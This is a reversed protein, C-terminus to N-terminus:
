QCFAESAFPVWCSAAEGKVNWVGDLGNASQIERSKGVVSQQYVRSGFGIYHSMLEGAM